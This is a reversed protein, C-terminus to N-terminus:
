RPPHPLKMELVDLNRSEVLIDYAEKLVKGKQQKKAIIIIYYDKKVGSRFAAIIRTGGMRPTSVDFPEIIVTRGLADKDHLIIDPVYATPTRRAGMRVTFMECGHRHAIGHVMLWDCVTAELRSRVPHGARSEFGARSYVIHVDADERSKMIRKRGFGGTNVM